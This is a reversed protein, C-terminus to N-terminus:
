RDLYEKYKKCGEELSYYPEWDPLWNEPSSQTIFQYGFSPPPDKKYTYPIKMHNLVMEFSLPKGTGVEYIGSEAGMALITADVVDDIYVFDRRPEDDIYTINGPNGRYLEFKGAEYAQRAVSAMNGKYGEGPGYVNFYRLAVFDLGIDFGYCETMYKTWGYLNGPRPICAASSAYIVKKNHTKCWDFLYKSTNYNYYLLESDSTHMTDAIAGIHLVIDVNKVIKDLLERADSNIWFDKELELTSHGLSILEKCIAGGIFGSSGTILIKEDM